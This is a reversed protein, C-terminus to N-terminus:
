RVPLMISFESGHGPESVVKIYGGQRTVIERALYLGIGVGQQEHVEEERYFRRFISAQNSESIGKGTDTVKLEVYMEWLVVSVSIKGGPPTYKVANDLLNFLAESTWKSDHSIILNEPCDVSVAIEKKEAAYVISSMAQALTHFLSSDKKELRIAGTELRSTKVLAQFLFDLKDTQSRIGQLFDMREEESVPKTLLTDTVMQLNSVPTKVQHSIDSILMQLEQREMDVKHRNEQMIEYLRILRHNIRAFLTESDNSKQLEENGDIMNDLTRCLNSTFHSLRKGFILVLLWIWFFACLTLTGGVIFIRIDQMIGGFIGTIVLMSFVMGASVLRCIKKASLNNLNM